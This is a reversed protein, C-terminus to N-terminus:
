GRPYGRNLGPAWVKNPHERQPHAGARSLGAPAALGPIWGTAAPDGSREAEWSAEFKM